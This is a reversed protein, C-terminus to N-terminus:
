GRSERIIRELDPNNWVGVPRENTADYFKTGVNYRGTWKEIFAGIEPTSLHAALAEEDRWIQLTLIFGADVDEMAFSYFQCGEEELSREIGACLDNLLEEVGAPDTSIRGTVIIM